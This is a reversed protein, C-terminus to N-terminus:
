GAYFSAVADVVARAGEADLEPYVPLALVERAAAEAHPFDGPRHGLDAFCEQLHFPVPYYVACGIGQESLHAQLEDRRRCRVVYQHYIHRGHGAEVPLRLRDEGVLGAATLLERYRAANRRRGDHWSELHRLKVRLVAAQLTDLRLNGGVEVSHYTDGFGHVRLRRLREAM